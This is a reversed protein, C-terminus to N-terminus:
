MLEYTTNWTQWFIKKITFAELYDCLSQPQFAGSCSHIGCALDGLATDLHSKFIEMSPPEVVARSLRLWLLFLKEQSKSPSELTENWAWQMKQQCHACQFSGPQTRQVGERWTSTLVSSIGSGERRRLQVLEKLRRCLSAKTKSDCAHDKGPNEWTRTETTSHFQSELCPMVPETTKLRTQRM